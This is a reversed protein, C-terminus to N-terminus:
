PPNDPKRIGWPCSFEHSQSDRGTGINDLFTSTGEEIVERGPPLVDWQQKLTKRSLFSMEEALFQEPNRCNHINDGWGRYSGYFREELSFPGMLDRKVLCIKLATM